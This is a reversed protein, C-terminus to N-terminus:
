KDAAKNVRLRLDRISEMTIYLSETEDHCNKSSTVYCIAGESSFTFPVSIMTTKLALVRQYKQLM